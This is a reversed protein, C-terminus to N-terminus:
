AKVEAICFVLRQMLLGNGVGATEVQCIYM